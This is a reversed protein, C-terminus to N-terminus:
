ASLGCGLVNLSSFTPVLRDRNECGYITRLKQIAGMVDLRSFQILLGIYIMIEGVEQCKWMPSKCISMVSLNQPRNLWVM